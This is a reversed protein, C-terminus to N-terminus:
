TQVGLQCCPVIFAKIMGEEHNYFKRYLEPASDLTSRHTVIFTPDLIGQQIYDLCLKWYKQTPSQGGRLTIGREMITGIPFHNTTGTYVGLIAVKGFGRVSKIIETLIDSTDSEMGIAREFRHTWSKAYEFGVCEIGVDVGDPFMKFLQQTIDVEKFDLVEIGLVEKAIRIREPVNEIGIIRSAGLIQCWRAVLLGVPGLGWIAVTSGEKVEGMDAAGFYATPIVDSLYLAKEDPIEDPLKLCNIDAYPVRVFEAQGGPVGGTLHSYGFIASTRHGLMSEELNSPNTVKCVSFEQRKCFECKGCAIDFACVVRQGVELSQVESGVEDVIGMFEHGLIDGSELAPMNGSYMHLDSGCISTATIRLIIDTAATIVPRPKEVYKVDEKGDWILAHMKKNPDVQPQTPSETPRKGMAKEVLNSIANM